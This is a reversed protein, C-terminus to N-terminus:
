TIFMLFTSRTTNLLLELAGLEREERFLFTKCATQTGVRATVTHDTDRTHGRGRSGGHTDSGGHCLLAKTKMLSGRTLRASAGKQLCRAIPIHIHPVSLM